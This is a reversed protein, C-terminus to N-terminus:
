RGRTRACMAWRCARAGGPERAACARCTRVRRARVHGQRAVWCRTHAFGFTELFTELFRKWEVDVRECVGGPRGSMLVPTLDLVPLNGLNAIQVLISPVFPSMKTRAFTGQGHGRERITRIAEVTAEDLFHWNSLVVKQVLGCLGFKSCVLCLPLTWPSAFHAFNRPM